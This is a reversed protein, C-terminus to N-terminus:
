KTHLELGRERESYQCATAAIGGGIHVAHEVLVVVLVVKLKLKWGWGVRTATEAINRPPGCSSVSLQDYQGHERATQRVSEM